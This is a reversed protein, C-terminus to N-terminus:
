LARARCWDATGRRHDRDRISRPDGLRDDPRVDRRHARPARRSGAIRVDTRRGAPRRGVAILTSETLLSRVIRGRSGGLSARIAIEHERSTWQAMMLVAVNTCAILLTLLVASTLLIIVFPGVGNGVPTGRLPAATVRVQRQDAPLQAALRRRRLTVSRGDSGGVLRGAQSGRCGVAHRRPTTALDLRTWVPGDMSEFWFRRPMVGIVTHPRGDILISTGVVDDRMQFLNFWVGASLIAPPDGGNPWEQFPTGLEPRVGLRDFLEPTVARVPRSVVQDGARVDHQRPM